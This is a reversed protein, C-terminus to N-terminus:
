LHSCSIIIPFQLISLIKNKQLKQIGHKEVRRTLELFLRGVRTLKGISTTQVKKLTQFLIMGIFVRPFFVNNYFIKSMAEVRPIKFLIVDLANKFQLFDM